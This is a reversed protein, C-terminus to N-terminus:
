AYIYELVKQVHEEDLKEGRLEPGIVGEIEFAEDLEIQTLKPNSASFPRFTRGIAVTVDLPLTEVIEKHETMAKRLIPIFEMVCDRHVSWVLEDHIPMMMRFDRGFGYELGAEKALAILNIISRKALTACSGQIMSNVVQNRARGQLRRICTDGFAIFGPSASLMAFKREMEMRWQQTVEYKVRRHGDPLTIFGNIAAEDQVGVRWAEAEPYRSRYADVLDWHEKDTFGLNHAVTSLAGSYWYSFNVGKGIATGRAFKHFGSPSLERGALDVLRRENPNEGFKFGKFEEETLDPFTKVRLGDVAAGSHMDGYPLQGYVEAFGKDGSMDGILVLEIASWDASLVVHDETDGHYFGRIYASDGSKALQMANPFSMALRRTALISSLVPYVCSTEPDMLQTYPTLYLKMRQEIDSMDQLTGMMDLRLQDLREEENMLEPTITKDPLKSLLKEKARGRAEKDSAVSGQDYEMDLGMLDFMLTRMGHYYVLNLKGSKPVKVQKETAWANGIPNSVQFCQEFDDDSDPSNAWDEIQKRKKAWNKYWKEKRLLVEHPEDPFPLMQKVQAKFKRLAAAMNARENEREEYVADLDLRIGNLWCDSYVEVMPNEQKLFCVLAKPNFDLMEEVMWEYHKVAWFADDAGYIRVQEGTLDAMDGDGVVEKFTLQKYGFRSETLRKLNYGKAISNVFGNYSHKAKSEKAIFKGLLEQQRGSLDDGVSWGEFDRIVDRAISHFETPLETNTFTQADYEDPSHHSVALQMTCVINKLTIDHCQKFMVIEFPANHAVCIADPNAANIVELVVHSPLRNEEDAHALNFYYSVPSGTCHISFGCMVTRRHDFVLRTANNYANLGDHRERDQTECDLGWLRTAALEAKIKPLMGKYNTADILVATAPQM